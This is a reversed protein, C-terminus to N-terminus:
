RERAMESKAFALSAACPLYLMHEWVEPTISKKKKKQYKKYKKETLITGLFSVRLNHQIGERPLEQAENNQM